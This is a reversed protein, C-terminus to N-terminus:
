IAWFSNHDELQPKGLVKLWIYRLWTAMYDLALFFCWSGVLGHSCVFMASLMAITERNTGLKFWFYNFIFLMAHM